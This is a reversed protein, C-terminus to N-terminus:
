ARLNAPMIYNTDTCFIGHGELDNHSDGSLEQPHVITEAQGWTQAQPCTGFICCLLLCFIISFSLLVWKLNSKRALAKHLFFLLIWITVVSISYSFPTSLQFRTHGLYKIVADKSGKM